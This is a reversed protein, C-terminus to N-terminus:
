GINLCSSNEPMVIVMPIGAPDHSGVNPGTGQTSFLRGLGVSRQDSPSPTEGKQFLHGRSNGASPELGGRFPWTGGALLLQSQMLICFSDHCQELM